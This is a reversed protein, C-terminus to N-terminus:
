DNTPTLQIDINCNLASAIAVLTNIEFNTNGNEIDTITSRRINAKDSLQQQSLGRFERIQRVMKGIHYLHTPITTNDM